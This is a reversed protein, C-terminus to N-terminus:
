THRIPNRNNKEFTAACQDVPRLVQLNPPEPRLYSSSINKYGLTQSKLNMRPMSKYRGTYVTNHRM